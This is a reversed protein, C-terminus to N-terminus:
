QLASVVMDYPTNKPIGKAAASAEMSDHATTLLDGVYSHLHLWGVSAVPYVHFSNCITPNKIKKHYNIQCSPSLDSKEVKASKMTGNSMEIVSNQSYIWKFSGIDSKSGDMLIKVAREGLEKMEGLLSLHTTTLTVANYIRERPITLVHVLSMLSSEGGIDERVPNMTNVTKGGRFGGPIFSVCNESEAVMLGGDHLPTFPEVKYQFVPKGINPGGPATGSVYETKGKMGEYSITESEGNEWSTIAEQEEWTLNCRAQDLVSLPKGECASMERVPDSLFHDDHSRGELHSGNMKSFM